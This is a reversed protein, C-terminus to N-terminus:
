NRKVKQLWMEFEEKGFPFEDEDFPTTVHHQGVYKFDAPDTTFTDAKKRRKVFLVNAPRGCNFIGAEGRTIDIVMYNTKM